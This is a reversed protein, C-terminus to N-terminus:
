VLEPADEDETDVEQIVPDVPPARPQTAVNMDIPDIALFEGLTNFYHKIDRSVVSDDSVNAVTGMVTAIQTRYKDVNNIVDDPAPINPLQYKSILNFYANFLKDPISRKLTALKQKPAQSRAVQANHLRKRLNQRKLKLAEEMNIRTEEETTIIKAHITNEPANTNFLFAYGEKLYSGITLTDPKNVKIDRKFRDIAAKSIFHSRDGEIIVSTSM